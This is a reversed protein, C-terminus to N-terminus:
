RSPDPRREARSRSSGFARGRPRGPSSMSDGIEKSVWGQNEEDAMAERMAIAEIQPDSVM